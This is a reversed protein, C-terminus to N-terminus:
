RGEEIQIGAPRRRASASFSGSARNKARWRTRNRFAETVPSSARVRVIVVSVPSVTVASWMTMAEPPRNRFFSGPMSCAIMGQSPMAAASATAARSAASSPPVMAMPMAVFGFSGPAIRPPGINSYAKM